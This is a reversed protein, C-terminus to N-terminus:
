GYFGKMMFEQQMPAILRSEMLRTSQDTTMRQLLERGPVELFLSSRDFHLASPASFGSHVRLIHPNRAGVLGLLKLAYYSKLPGRRYVSFARYNASVIGPKKLAILGPSRVQHGM